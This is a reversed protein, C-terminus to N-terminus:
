VGLLASYTLQGVVGDDDLKAWRQFNKVGAETGPGFEGDVGCGGCSFDHGILLMQLSRVADGRCGRQLIPLEVFYTKTGPDVTGGDVVSWKPRGYGAIRSDGLAYSRRAVMDSTNGEITTIAGMGVKEVVGTHNIEGAAFFFVQDGPEPTGYWANNAKYYSASTRCLASGKGIPQYTMQSAASLGFCVIMGEDYIVDCWPQNQPKWGYLKALDPDEAYKNYNNEGERYGIQERWWALYKEVAASM